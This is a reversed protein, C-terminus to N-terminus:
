GGIENMSQKVEFIREIPKLKMIEHLISLVEEQNKGKLSTGENMMLCPRIIGDASIRLRSCGGCFPKSESAIFGINAGNNLKFNFSTDDVKRSLNELSYKEKLKSIAEDASVFEEDFNKRVVGIRMLELFRVEIDYKASFEAFDFLEHINSQRMMVVNIKVNFGLEKAKLVSKKVKELGNNKTMEFFVDKDLSDLSFNINKIKTKQLEDLLPLLTLGNTTLGFKKYPLTSLDKAIDMFDSRLTPEGGTLRLEDIGHDNLIKALRFIEERTLLKHSALFKPDSPMCYRCRFNCADLLSFRVKHILRGHPDVLQKV